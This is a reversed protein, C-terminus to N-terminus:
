FLSRTEDTSPLPGWAFQFYIFVALDAVNPQTFDKLLFCTLVLPKMGTAPIIGMAAPLMQGICGFFQAAHTFPRPKVLNM